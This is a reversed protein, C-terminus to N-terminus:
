LCGKFTEYECNNLTTNGKGKSTIGEDYGIETLQSRHQSM